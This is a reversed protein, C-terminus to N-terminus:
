QGFLAKLTARGEAIDAATMESHTNHAKLFANAEDITLDLIESLRGLSIAGTRFAALAARELLERAIEGGNREFITEPVTLTVNM